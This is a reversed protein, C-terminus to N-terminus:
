LPWKQAAYQLSYDDDTRVNVGNEVLYQVVASRAGKPKAYDVTELHNMKVKKKITFYNNYM